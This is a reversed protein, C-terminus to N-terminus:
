GASKRHLENAHWRGADMWDIVNDGPMSRSIYYGQVNDCGMAKLQEYTEKDEVGEAVVLIELNHAFDIVTQVISRDKKDDNISKVFSRDIKLEHVPLRRLYQMSSYGTGFDDISIRIGLENLEHLVHEAREPDSLMVGETIELKLRRGPLNWASLGGRIMNVLDPNHFSTTSLNIGVQLESCQKGWEDCQKLVSALMWDTLPHILGTQEAIDILQQTTIGQDMITEARTLAEYGVVLGSGTNVQPQYEVRLEDNELAHRLMDVIKIRFRSDPDRERSYMAIISHDHKAQHLAISARSILSDAQDGHDPYVAIGISASVRLSRNEIHFVRSFLKHMNIAVHRAQATDADAIVISFEDGALRAILEARPYNQKLTDAFQCLVKDGVKYGYTDNIEKFRDLGIIIIAFSKKDAGPGKLLEMAKKRFMARNPLETLSDHHAMFELEKERLRVQERMTRFAYDLDAMETVDSATIETDPIDGRAEAHLAQAMQKVPLLIRKRLYNFGFIVLLSVLAAVVWLNRSIRQANRDLRAVSDRYLKKAQQDLENLSGQITVLTPRIDRQLVPIDTRWDPSSQIKKVQAYAVIWANAAQLMNEYSDSVEFGIEEHETLAKVELLKDMVAQHLLETNDSYTQMGGEPTGFTGTRFAVFVRFESIMSIWLEKLDRFLSLERDFGAFDVEELMAGVAGTFQANAPNMTDVVTPMAPFLVERDLRIQILRETDQGLQTVKFYLEEYLPIFNTEKPAGMGELKLRILEQATAELYAGTLDRQKEDPSILYESLAFESQWLLSRMVNNSHQINGAIQIAASAQRKDELHNLYVWGIIAFIALLLAATVLAYRALLSKRWSHFNGIGV